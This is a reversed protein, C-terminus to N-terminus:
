WTVALSCPLSYMLNKWIIKAVEQLDIIIELNFTFFAFFFFASTGGAVSAEMHLM